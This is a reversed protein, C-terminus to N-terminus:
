IQTHTHTYGPAVREGGMCGSDKAFLPLSTHLLSIILYILGVRRRKDRVHINLANARCRRRRRCSFIDRGYDGGIQGTVKPKHRRASPPIAPSPPPCNARPRVLRKSSVKMPLSGSAGGGSSMGRRRRRAETIRSGKPGTLSSDTSTTHEHSQILFDHPFTCKCCCCCSGTETM